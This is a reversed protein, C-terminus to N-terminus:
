ASPQGDDWVHTRNRGAKKAAYMAHDAREIAQEVPLNPQLQAVGCSVHCHLPRGNVTLPTGALGERLRDVLTRCTQLDADPICLLFEEGGYRFVRDYPRVHEILFASAHMLVQDGVPHGYRDNVLKFHDLDIMAVGCALINRRVLEQQERLWTLMTIRNYAGTLPDLDGIAGELEHKLTQLQAHLDSLARAFAEYDGVQVERGAELGRLLNAAIRHVRVHDSELALFGPRERLELSEERYYWQGFECNRHADDAIQARDFPLRCVLTKVISEYWEQHREIALDLHHLATQVETRSLGHM